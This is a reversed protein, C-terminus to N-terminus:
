LLFFSCENKLNIDTYQFHGSLFTDTDALNRQILNTVTFALPNGPHVSPILVHARSVTVHTAMVVVDSGSIEWHSKEKKLDYSFKKKQM